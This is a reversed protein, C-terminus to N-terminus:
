ILGKTEVDKRILTVIYGSMFHGNYETYKKLVEYIDAPISVPVLKPKPKNSKPRGRQKTQQQM